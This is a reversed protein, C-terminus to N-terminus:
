DRIEFDAYIAYHDSAFGGDTKEAFIRYKETFIEKSGMIYDIPSKTEDFARKGYDHFTNGSTSDAADYKLDKLLSTAIKYTPSGELTNFDGSLLMSGGNERMKGIMMKIGEQRATEGVNDLHSNFYSLTKGTGKDKLYVYSAVRPYAADWDIGPTDPHTNLYYSGNGLLEFRSKRYFIPTGEDKVGDRSLYEYDYDALVRAMDECQNLKVEQFGYLDANIEGLQKAIRPLRNVWLNQPEEGEYDVRLNFSCLRM